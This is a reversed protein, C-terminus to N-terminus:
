LCNSAFHLGFNCILLYLLELSDTIVISIGMGVRCLEVHPDLVHFIRITLTWDHFHATVDVWLQRLMWVVETGKIVHHLTHLPICAFCIWESLVLDAGLFIFGESQLCELLVQQVMLDVLAEYHVFPLVLPVHSSISHCITYFPSKM